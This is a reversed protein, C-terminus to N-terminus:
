HLFFNDLVSGVKGFFSTMRSCDAGPTSGCSDSAAGGNTFSVRRLRARWAMDWMWEIRGRNLSHEFENDHWDEDQDWYFEAQAISLRAVTNAADAVGNAEDEGWAAIRVGQRGLSPPEDGFAITRMQFDTDGLMLEGPAGERDPCDTSVLSEGRGFRCVQKPPEWSSPDPRTVADADVCVKDNKTCGYIESTMPVAMWHRGEEAGANLSNIASAESGPLVSSCVTQYGPTGPAGVVGPSRTGWSEPTAYHCAADWPYVKSGDPWEDGSPLPGYRANCGPPRGGSDAVTYERDARVRADDPALAKGRIVCTGTPDTEGWWVIFRRETAYQVEEISGSSCQSLALNTRAQCLPRSDVRDYTGSDPAREVETDRRAPDQCGEFEIRGGGTCEGDTDSIDAPPCYAAGSVNNTQVSDHCAQSLAEDCAATGFGDACPACVALGAAEGSCQQSCAKTNADQPYVMEQDFCPPEGPDGGGCYVRAFYDYLRGSAGSIWDAVKGGIVPILEFPKGVLTTAFPKGRDCTERFVHDEVPLSAYIPFAVGVTAPPNFPGEGVAQYSRAQGIVPWALAIADQGNHCVEVINQALEELQNTINRVASEASKLWAVAPATCGGCFFGVVAAIAFAATIIMQIMRLLIVIAVVIAMILNLLVILNMGRANTVAAAFAGTDSADQMRERFLITDTLGVMYYVMGVLFVAMFLGMLLVAGSQDELLSRSEEEPLETLEPLEPETAPALTHALTM